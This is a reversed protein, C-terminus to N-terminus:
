RHAKIARPIQFVMPRYIEGRVSALNRALEYLEASNIQRNLVNPRGSKLTDPRDFSAYIRGHIVENRKEFLSKSHNLSELLFERCDFELMRVLSKSKDIKRSIPWHHKLEPSAELPELMILLNDVQEELYAAYLAVFGLGRIIDGDDSLPM